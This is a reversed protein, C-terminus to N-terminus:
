LVLPPRPTRISCWFRLERPGMHPTDSGSATSVALARQSSRPMSVMLAPPVMAQAISHASRPSSSAGQSRKPSPAASSRASSSIPEPWPTPGSSASPLRAAACTTPCPESRKAAWTL